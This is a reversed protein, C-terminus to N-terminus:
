LIEGFTQFWKRRLNFHDKLPARLVAFQWLIIDFIGGGWKEFSIEETTNVIVTSSEM